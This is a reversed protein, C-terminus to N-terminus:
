GNSKETVAAHIEGKSVKIKLSDGKRVQEASKVLVNEPMKWAVAYGRSLVALPSLAELQAAKGQLAETMQDLQTAFATRVREGLSKLSEAQRQLVNKPSLLVLKSKLHDLHQEMSEWWSDFSGRLQSFLMDLTRKLDAKNKVVLEAAASPTPARLDAVFDAITFDIEHGVCSIVPINSAAMARAVTEENFAWLDEISGGGRGVLLVDLDPHNENLYAIAESIDDKAGEGQVKVPYILIEVNAFRRDIVNLIDRVAAGTPSTVIGIKQPLAPIPKKRAPDFLGEAELKKKLQEFALQLAGAGKPEILSAVIQFRGRQPYLSARGLVLLQLGDELKFRVSGMVGRFAVIDIQAEADKLSFYCHGSGAVGRFNSVEGEIWVEAYREELEDKVM